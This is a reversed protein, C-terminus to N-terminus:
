DHRSTSHRKLPTKTIDVEQTHSHYREITQGLFREQLAPLIAAEQTESADLCPWM